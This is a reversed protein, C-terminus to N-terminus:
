QYGIMPRNDGVARFVDLEMDNTIFPPLCDSKISKVPIKESGFQHRGSTRIAKWGLESLKQLRFLFDYFFKADRCKNISKDQLWRFSFLPYEIGVFSKLDETFLVYKNDIDTILSFDEPSSNVKSKRKM